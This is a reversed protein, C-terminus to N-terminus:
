AKKRTRMPVQKQMAAVLKKVEPWELLAAETVKPDRELDQLWLWLGRKRGDDTLFLKMDFATVSCRLVLLAEDVPLPEVDRPARKLAAACKDCYDRLPDAKRERQREAKKARDRKGPEQWSLPVDFHRYHFLSLRNHCVPSACKEPDSPTTM